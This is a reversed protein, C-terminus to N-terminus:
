ASSAAARPQGPFFPWEEFATCRGDAHLTVIWLDRYRRQPPDGYDVEVRAVGTDGDVAVIQYTLAFVEDPGAREADWFVAIAPLGVLVDDFPAPRYTADPVFLGDLQATGATRWAREYREIWSALAARDM